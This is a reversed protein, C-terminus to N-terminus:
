RNAEAEMEELLKYMAAAYVIIGLVEAKAAVHQKNGTMTVAEQAKKMIQLAPGAPGLQRSNALIPQEHWPRFGVPGIAHRSRGKGSASQEFALKLIRELEEYGHGKPMVLSKPAMAKAMETELTHTVLKEIRENM